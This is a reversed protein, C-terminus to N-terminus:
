EIDSILKVTRPMFFNSLFRLGAFADTGLKAGALIRLKSDLSIAGTSQTM